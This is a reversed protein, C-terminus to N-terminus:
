LPTANELELQAQKKIENFENVDLNGSVIGFTILFMPNNENAWYHYLNKGKFVNQDFYVKYYQLNNQDVASYFEYFDQNKLISVFNIGETTFEENLPFATVFEKLENANITYLNYLSLSDLLGIWQDIIKSNKEIFSSHGYSGLSKRELLVEVTTKELFPVTMISSHHFYSSLLEEFEESDRSIEIDCPIDLNSLYTLLKSGKLSSNKYDIIYFTSKDEFYKKLDQISIPAITQIFNMNDEEERVMVVVTAAVTAYM